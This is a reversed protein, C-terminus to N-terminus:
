SARFIFVIYGVLVASVMVGASEYFLAPNDGGGYGGAEPNIGFIVAFCAALMIAVAIPIYADHRQRQRVTGSTDYSSMTMCITNM